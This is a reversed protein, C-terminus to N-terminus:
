EGINKYEVARSFDAILKSSSNLLIVVRGINTDHIWELALFAAILETSM